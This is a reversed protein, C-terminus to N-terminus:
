RLLINFSKNPTLFNNKGLIHQLLRSNSFRPKLHLCLKPSLAWATEFYDSWHKMNRSSFQDQGPIEFQPLGQPNTWAVIRDVENGVLLILLKRMKGLTSEVITVMIVLLRCLGSQTFNEASISAREFSADLPFEKELLECVQTLCAVNEAVVEHDEPDAYWVPDAMFWHIAALYTRERLLQYHFLPDAGAERAWKLLELCLRILRFRTVLSPGLTSYNSLM